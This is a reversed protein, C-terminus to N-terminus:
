DDRVFFELYSEDVEDPDDYDISGIVQLRGDFLMLLQQTETGYDKDWTLNLIGDSADEITTTTQGWNCDQPVCDSWVRVFITEDDNQIRLRTIGTTDVDQNNWDGIFPGWIPTATPTLTEQPELVTIQVYFNIGFLVGSPTRLQWDGRYDGPEDPATLTVTVDVTGGPSTAPVDSAEGGMQEGSVFVIQTGQEWTLCGSNQIRWTKDFTTGAVIEEGDEITVDDLFAAWYTCETPTATEAAEPTATTEDAEETATVGPTLTVPTVNTLIDAISRTPTVNTTTRPANCALAGLVLSVIVWQIRQRRSHQEGM